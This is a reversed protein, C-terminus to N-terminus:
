EELDAAAREAAAVLEEDDSNAVAYHLAELGDSHGLERLLTVQRERTAVTISFSYADDDRDENEVSSRLTRAIPDVLTATAVGVDHDAAAVEALAFLAHPEIRGDRDRMRAALEDVADSLYAPDERALISLLSGALLDNMFAQDAEGLTTEAWAEAPRNHLGAALTSALPAVLAPREEGLAAAAQLADGAAEEDDRALLESLTEVDGEDFTEPAERARRKLEAARERTTPGSVARRVRDVLSDDPDEGDMHGNTHGSRIFM